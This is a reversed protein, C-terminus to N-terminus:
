SKRVRPDIVAQVFDVGINIVVFALAGILVGAQIVPLDRASISNFLLLGLGPWAFLTEVFVVGGLLYGIQLGVMTLVSPVTNHFAHRLVRRESLGRARYAEVYPTSLVDLLATRFSRGIIGAPVLSVTLAPLFGHWLVDAVGGGHVDSMGSVPFWRTGLAVYVILILAVSYQPASVALSTLASSVRGYVSKPRLAAVAGLALGIVLALVTAYATLVLTNVFADWVIERAPVQRAVSMGLDGQVADALWHLYQLPAARDLWLQERLAAKDADTAGFGALLEVPDGPVLKVAIFVILSVGLLIPIALVIRRAAFRTM